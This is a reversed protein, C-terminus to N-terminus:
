LNGRLMKKFEELKKNTNKGIFPPAFNDLSGEPLGLVVEWKALTSRNISENDNLINTINQKRTIKLNHMHELKNLEEVFKARTWKKKNLANNIYNSLTILCIM